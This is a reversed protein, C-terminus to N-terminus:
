ILGADVPPDVRVVDGEEAHEGLVAVVRRPNLRKVAEHSRGAVPPQGRDCPDVRVEAIDPDFAIIIVRGHVQPAPLLKHAADVLRHGRGALAEPPFRQQDDDVVLVAAEKIM